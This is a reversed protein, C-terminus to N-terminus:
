RLAELTPVPARWGGVRAILRDAAPPGWTGPDYPSLPTAAGLIPEVVAWAAEVSDERAFLTPDGAMADGILREYPAMADGREQCVSLELDYVVTAEGAAKARAGLAIAVSPGLRFRLYNPGGAGPERFM